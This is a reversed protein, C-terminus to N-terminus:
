TFDDAIAPAQVFSFERVAAPLPSRGDARPPMLAAEIVAPLLLRRETPLQFDRTRATRTSISTLITSRISRYKPM